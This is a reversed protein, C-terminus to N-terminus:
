LSRALQTLGARFQNAGGMSPHRLTFHPTIGLSSLTRMAVQGVAVVRAGKFLQLVRQLVPLGQALEAKTPARNSYPNGAKFPHWAFANWLVVREAIGLEHLAGWVITASPECWPRPRSTIRSDVKVRPILGKLLLSENTFACGSFHCGQYGPAEGVLIMVPDIDFHARLRNLRGTPGPLTTALGSLHATVPLDQADTEAWPNFVNPARFASLADFLQDM